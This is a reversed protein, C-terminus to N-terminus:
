EREGFGDAFDEASGWDRPLLGKAVYRGFTSFSWDQARQVHGHKVPNFHIYDVHRRLDDEDRILHEWYRRQWIGREAKQVLSPRRYEGAPIRHSFGTKLLRWRTAYDTDGPPLTWIVHLHEPLVVMAVTKFPHNQRVEAYSTRLYEINEVLLSSQRDALVVTFFWTGGPLWARRYETM